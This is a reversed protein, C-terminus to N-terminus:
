VAENADLDFPHHVPASSTQSLKETRFRWTIRLYSCFFVQIEGLFLFVPTTCM